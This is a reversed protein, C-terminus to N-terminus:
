TSKKVNGKGRRPARDRAPLTEAPAGCGEIRLAAVHLKMNCRMVESMAGTISELPQAVKTGPDPADFSIKLLPNL